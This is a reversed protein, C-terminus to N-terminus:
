GDHPPITAIRLSNTAGPTGFPVGATIVVKDGEAAVGQHHAIRVAKHVMDSFSSADKAVVPTVGWVMSMRRATTMSPTLCLIPVGPRERAARLTTSGGSTYTVIAAAHITAAVQKAAATIADASTELLIPHEASLTSMFLPDRHVRCVIRDMMEVAECPYEGAATEASLMVADAGEYIAIAVDSAEARTPTPAKIMSELMQTAVIVPKGAARATVIVRRQVPPVEEPPMEIGLDGRAVMIGDALDVIAELHDLAAPKEIKALLAARGGLLTRGEVVDEPRQVFSMAVWDIDHGLAFALDAKDKSTLAAIPLVANPVNLGKRNTVAGGVVVETLVGDAVIEVVRLKVKGDDILLETGPLAVALIEPHPLCVRGGDGPSPDLDLRFRDGKKLVTGGAGFTGLRLKPGQLDIMIGIPRGRRKEIRRILEMARAHDEHAGHSFNLRFVDVGRLFLAELMEESTSAPGVTAVIKASRARGIVTKM